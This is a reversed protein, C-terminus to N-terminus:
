EGKATKRPPPTFYRFDAPGCPMRLGDGGWIDLNAAELANAEIFDRWPEVLDGM